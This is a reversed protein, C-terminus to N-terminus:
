GDGKAAELMADRASLMSKAWGINDIEADERIAQFFYLEIFEAVNKCQDKTLDVKM